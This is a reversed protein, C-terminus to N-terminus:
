KSETKSTSRAIAVAQDIGERELEDALRAVDARDARVLPARAPLRRLWRAWTLRERITM